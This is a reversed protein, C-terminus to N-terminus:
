YFRSHNRVLCYLVIEITWCESVGAPEVMRTLPPREGRDNAATAVAVALSARQAGPTSDDFRGGGRQGFVDLLRAGRGYENGLSATRAPFDRVWRVYTEETRGAGCSM